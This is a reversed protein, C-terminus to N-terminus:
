TGGTGVVQKRGMDGAEAGSGKLPGYNTADCHVTRGYEEEEICLGGGGRVWGGENGGVLSPYEWISGMLRLPHRGTSM